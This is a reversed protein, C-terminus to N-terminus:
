YIFKRNLKKKNKLYDKKSIFFNNIIPSKPLLKKEKKVPNM